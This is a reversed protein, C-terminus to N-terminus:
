KIRTPIFWFGFETADEYVDLQQNQIEKKILNALEPTEAYASFGKKISDLKEQALKKSNLVKM